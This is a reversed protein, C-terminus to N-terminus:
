EVAALLMAHVHRGRARLRGSFDIQVDAVRLGKQGIAPQVSVFRQMVPSLIM